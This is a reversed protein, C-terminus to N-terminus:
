IARACQLIRSNHPAGRPRTEGTSPPEVWLTTSQEPLQRATQSPLRSSRLRTVFAAKPPQAIRRATVHTFGSCAEFTSTRIGVRRCLPSPRALPSAISLRVRRIRRPLPCLVGSLHLPYRPLGVPSTAAEVVSHRRVPPLRVPDYTGNFGPLAPPPFAGSKQHAKSAPPPPSQRHAEFCGFSGSRASSVRNSPSSRAPTGTKCATRCPRAPQCGSGRTLDPARWCLRARRPRSSTRGSRLTPGPSHSALKPSSSRRLRVPGPPAAPSSGLARRRPADERYGSTAPMICRM